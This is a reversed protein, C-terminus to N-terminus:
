FYAGVVNALTIELNRGLKLEGSFISFLDQVQTHLLKWNIWVSRMENRGKQDIQCVPASCTITVSLTTLRFSGAYSAFTYMLWGALRLKTLRSGITLCRFLDISFM